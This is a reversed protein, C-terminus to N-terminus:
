LAKLTQISDCYECKYEMNEEDVLIFSQKVYTEKLSACNKNNCVMVKEIKRPLIERHRKIVDMFIAM